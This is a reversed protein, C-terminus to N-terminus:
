GAGMLLIRQQRFHRKNLLPILWKVQQVPTLLFCRTNLVSAAPEQFSVRCNDANLTPYFFYFFSAQMHMIFTM